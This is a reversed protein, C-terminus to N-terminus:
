DSVVYRLFGVLTGEDIEDDAITVTIEAGGGADVTYPIELKNLAHELASAAETWKKEDGVAKEPRTALYIDFNDFGFKKLMSMSFVLLKEVEEELQEPTCIIHADDQTFGRVRMLGHLVGSREYRYVTGMEAYKVPLERYSHKGTNYISIHFPCNMPKLYYMQGEVEIPAFMSDSYNDLHGSTKWLDAKGIHPSYVIQYGAAFHEQKWYEEILSRILAGNPHWLVLGPGINDNISFLDLEKGLKRHDRKKREELDEIYKKLEKKSPFSIGYIRALMKNNEDGRWYAGSTKLLKFAKIKGTHPVHPGRCLDTFNGHTYTTISEGKPLDDLIEVKYTEGLKKFLNKAKTKTLVERVFPQRKKALETMKEEINKIDEDSFPTEKDFDYYFGEEIAPGITVKVEPFLEKVAEALLHASSHWYVERGKDTDFTHFLLTANEEIPTNMDIMKGDIEAAIAKISIENDPLSKAIEFPTVGKDFERVIENELNIQIKM